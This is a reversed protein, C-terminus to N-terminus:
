FGVTKNMVLENRTKPAGDEEEAGGEGGPERRSTGFVVQSSGFSLM